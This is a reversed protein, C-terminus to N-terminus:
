EAYQRWIDGWPIPPEVGLEPTGLTYHAIGVDSSDIEPDDVGVLYNWKKPLEGIEDDDLWCFRHLDRGPLENVMPLTLRNHAKHNLNWLMVSSWNKRAYRTQAESGMKFPDTPTHDHKVVQIAYRDDSLHFLEEIDSLFIMDAFDCFLAWSTNTLHPVLFRSIAFSTAMPADSIADYLQTDTSRNSKRRHEHERWYLRANRLASEVLPVVRIPQKSTDLLSRTAAAFSRPEKPDWGAVIDIM